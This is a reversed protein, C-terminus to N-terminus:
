LFITNEFNKFHNDKTLIHEQENKATQLLIGDAFGFSQEKKRSSNIIVPNIHIM